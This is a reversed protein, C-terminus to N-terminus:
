SFSPETYTGNSKIVSTFPIPKGEDIDVEGKDIEEVMGPFTYYHTADFYLLYTASAGEEMSSAAASNWLGSVDATGKKVGAVCVAFGSSENHAFQTITCNKRLKWKQILAQVTSGIKVTGDKGSIPTSM